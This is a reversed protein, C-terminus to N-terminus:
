KDKIHHEALSLIRYVIGEPKRTKTVVGREILTRLHQGVTTKSIGSLEAIEEHTVCCTGTFDLSKRLTDLVLEASPSLDKM